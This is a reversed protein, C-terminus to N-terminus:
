SLIRVASINSGRPWLSMNPEDNEWWTVGFGIQTDYEHFAVAKYVHAPMTRDSCTGNRNFGSKDLRFLRVRIDRKLAGDAKDFSANFHIVAFCLRDRYDVNRREKKVAVNFGVYGLETFNFNSM